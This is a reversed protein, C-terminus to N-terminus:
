YSLTTYKRHLTQGSLPGQRQNGRLDAIRFTKRHPGSCLM